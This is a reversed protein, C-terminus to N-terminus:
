SLAVHKNGPDKKVDKDTRTQAEEQAKLERMRKIDEETLKEVIGRVFSDKAEWYRKLFANTVESVGTAGGGEM